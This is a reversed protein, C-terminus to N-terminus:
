SASPLASSAPVVIPDARQPAESYVNRHGPRDPRGHLHVSGTVERVEGLRSRVGDFGDGRSSKCQRVLEGERQSGAGGERAANSTWCQTCQCTEGKHGLGGYRRALGLGARRLNGLSCSWRYGGLAEKADARGISRTFGDHSLKPNFTRSVRVRVFASPM